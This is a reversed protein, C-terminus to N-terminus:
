RKPRKSSKPQVPPDDPPVEAMLGRRIMVRAEGRPLAYRRGARFVRGAQTIKDRTAYLDVLNPM